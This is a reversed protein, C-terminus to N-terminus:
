SLLTKICFRLYNPPYLVIFFSTPTAAIKKRTAVSPDAAVNHVLKEPGCIMVGVNWHLRPPRVKLLKVTTAAAPLIDGSTSRTDAFVTPPVTFRFKLGFM